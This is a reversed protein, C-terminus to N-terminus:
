GIATLDSLTARITICCPSPKSLTLVPTVVGDHERVMYMSQNFRVIIAVFSHMCILIITRVYM